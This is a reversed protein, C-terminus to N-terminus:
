MSVSDEVVAVENTSLHPLYDFGKLHSCEVVCSVLHRMSNEDMRYRIKRLIGSTGNVVGAQVDYNSGIVVPMGIVLPLRGLRYNT